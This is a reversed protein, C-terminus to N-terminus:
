CRRRPSRIPRSSSPSESSPGNASGDTSRPDALKLILDARLVMSMEDHRIGDAGAYVMGLATSISYPGIVVNKGVQEGAVRGYLELAFRNTGAVVSAVDEAVAPPVHRGRVTGFLLHLDTSPDTPETSTPETSMPETQAPVASDAVPAMARVPVRPLPQGVEGPATGCAMLGVVLTVGVTNHTWRGLTM